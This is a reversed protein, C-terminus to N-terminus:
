GAGTSCNSRRYRQLFESDFRESVSSEVLMELWQQSLVHDSLVPLFRLTLDASLEIDTPFLYEMAENYFRPQVLEPKRLLEEFLRDISGEEVSAILLQQWSSPTQMAKVWLVGFVALAVLLLIGNM